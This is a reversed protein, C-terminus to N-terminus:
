KTPPLKAKKRAIKRMKAKFQKLTYSEPKEALAERIRLDLRLAAAQRGGKERSKGLLEDTLPVHESKSGDEILADFEPNKRNQELEKARSPM